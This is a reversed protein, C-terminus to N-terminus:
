LFIKSKKHHVKKSKKQKSDTNLMHRLKTFERVKMVFDIQAWHHLRIKTERHVGM